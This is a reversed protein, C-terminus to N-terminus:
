LEKYTVSLKYTAHHYNLKYERFDYTRTKHMQWPNKLFIIIKSSYLFLITYHNRKGLISPTGPLVNGIRNHSAKQLELPYVHTYVFIYIFGEEHLPLRCVSYIVIIENRQWILFKQDKMKDDNVNM